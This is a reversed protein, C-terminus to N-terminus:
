FDDVAADWAEQANKEPFAKGKLADLNGLFGWFADYNDLKATPPLGFGTSIASLRQLRSKHPRRM